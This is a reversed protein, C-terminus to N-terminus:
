GVPKGFLPARSEVAEAGLRRIVASKERVGMVLSRSESTAGRDRMGVGASKRPRM